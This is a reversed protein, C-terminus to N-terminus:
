PVSSAMVRCAARRLLHVSQLRRTRRTAQVYGVNVYGWLFGRGVVNCRGSHVKARVAGAEAAEVAVVAATRM